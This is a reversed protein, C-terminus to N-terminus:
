LMHQVHRWRPRLASESRWWIEYMNLSRMCILLLVSSQIYRGINAIWSISLMLNRTWLHVMCSFFTNMGYLEETFINVGWIFYKNMINKIVWLLQYWDPYGTMYDKFNCSPIEYLDQISCWAEKPFYVLYQTPKFYHM